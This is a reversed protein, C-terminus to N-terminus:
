AFTAAKVKYLEPQASECAEKILEAMYDIDNQLLSYIAFNEEEIASSDKLASLYQLGEVKCGQSYLNNAESAAFTLNEIIARKLEEDLLYREYSLYHVYDGLETLCSVINRLHIQEEIKEM